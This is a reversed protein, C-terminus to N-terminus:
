GINRITDKAIKGGISVYNLTTDYKVHGMIDKLAEITGGALLFNDAFLHRLYHTSMGVLGYYEGYKQLERNYYRKVTELKNFLKTEDFYECKADLFLYGYPKDIISRLIAEYKKHLIVTRGKNGKTQSLGAGLAIHILDPDMGFDINESRMTCMELFRCGTKIQILAMYKYKYPKLPLKNIIDQMLEKSIHKFVKKRPKRKVSKIEEYLRKHGISELLYKFAYKYNYCNKTKNKETLFVNIDHSNFEMGNSLLFLRIVKRYKIKSSHALNTSITMYEDMQNIVEQITKTM